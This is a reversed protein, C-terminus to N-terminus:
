GSRQLSVKIVVHGVNYVITVKWHVNSCVAKNQFKRAEPDAIWRCINETDVVNWDYIYMKLIEIKIYLLWLM